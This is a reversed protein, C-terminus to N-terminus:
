GCAGARESNKIHDGLYCKSIWIISVGRNGNVDERKLGYVKRLVRSELMMLMHEARLGVYVSLELIERVMM